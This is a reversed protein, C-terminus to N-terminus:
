VYGKFGCVNLINGQTATYSFTGAKGSHKLSLAFQLSFLKLLWLRLLCRRGKVEVRFPCTQSNGSEDRATFTVVHTGESFLHSTDTPLIEVPTVEMDPIQGDNDM